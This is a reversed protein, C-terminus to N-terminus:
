AEDTTFHQCSQRFVQSFNQYFFRVFFRHPRNELRSCSTKQASHDDPTRQLRPRANHFVGIKSSHKNLGMAHRTVWLYIKSLLSFYMKCFSCIYIKCQKAWTCAQDALFISKWSLYKKQLPIFIFEELSPLETSERINQRCSTEHLLFMQKSTCRKQM